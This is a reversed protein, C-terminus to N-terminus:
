YNIEVLKFCLLPAYMIYKMHLKSCSGFQYTAAPLQWPTHKNWAIVSNFSVSKNSELELKSNLMEREGGKGSGPKKGM